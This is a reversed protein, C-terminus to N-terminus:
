RPIFQDIADTDGQSKSPYFLFNETHTNGRKKENNQM